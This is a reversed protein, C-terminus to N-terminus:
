GIGISQSYSSSYGSLGQLPLSLSSSQPFYLGAESKQWSQYKVQNKESLSSLDVHCPNWEWSKKSDVLVIPSPGSRLVQELLQKSTKGQLCPRRRDNLRDVKPWLEEYPVDGFDTGKPYYWRLERNKYECLARQGPSYPDCYHTKLQPFLAELEFLHEFESGNDSLMTKVMGSPFMKLFGRLTTNITDSKLDKVKFHWVYQTFVDVITLIAEGSGKKCSAICDIQFHGFYLPRLEFSAMEHISKKKPNGHKNYTTKSPTVKLRFKKGHYRLHEKVYEMRNKPSNLYNYMASACLTQGPFHAPVGYSIDRPSRDDRLEKIMHSKLDENADLKCRKRPIKKRENALSQAHETREQASALKNAEETAYSNRKLERSIATHHRNLARGIERVGKGHQNMLYLSSRQEKTLHTYHDDTIKMAGKPNSLEGFPIV